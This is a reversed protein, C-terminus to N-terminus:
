PVASIFGGDVLVNEGSVYSAAPSLLFAAVRALEPPEGYRALPITAADRAIQEDAGIRAAAARSEALSRARDTEIRGPAVSNVRVLPGLQRALSKVLAAIGPRLVNSTDLGPMPERITSSTVFVVSAGEGLAPVLARLLRVPGGVVLEFARRWDDDSLDLANGAKPGGHNVLVGDLREGLTDRAAAAVREAADPQAVDVACTAARDGLESAAVALADADRAVLLVSAGERVLEEAVARGLGRSGGGVVFTRGELGLDM